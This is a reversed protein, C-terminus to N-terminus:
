TLCKQCHLTLRTEALPDALVMKEGIEELEEDSWSESRLEPVRGSAGGTEMPAAPSQPVIRCNEVIRIAASRLDAEQAAKALDRSTPLRFTGRKVVILEGSGTDSDLEDFRLRKDVSLEDVEKDQEEVAIARGDLEFELKEGCNVCSAWGQISRGFSGCHLEALAKNRRGLPWDAIREYTTEPLVASLAMIARDLPHRRM